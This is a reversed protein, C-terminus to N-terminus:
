VGYKEAMRVAEQYFAPVYAEVVVGKVESPESDMDIEKKLQSISTDVLTTGIFVDGSDLEVILMLSDKLQSHITLIMATDIM